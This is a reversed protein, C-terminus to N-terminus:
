MKEEAELSALAALLNKIRDKNPIRRYARCAELLTNYKGIQKHLADRSRLFHAAPLLRDIEHEILAVKQKLRSNEERLQRNYRILEAFPDQKKEPEMEIMPMTWGMM